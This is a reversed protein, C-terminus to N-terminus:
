RARDEITGYSPQQFTVISNREERLQQNEEKLAQKALSERKRWLVVYTLIMLYGLGGVIALSITSLGNSPVPVLDQYVTCVSPLIKGGNLNRLCIEFQNSSPTSDVECYQTCNDLIRVPRDPTCCSSIQLAAPQISTACILGSMGSINLASLDPRSPCKTSNSSSHTVSATTDFNPIRAAPM